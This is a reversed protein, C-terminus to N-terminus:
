NKGQKGKGRSLKDQKLQGRWHHTLYAATCVLLCKHIAKKWSRSRQPDRQRWLGMWQGRKRGQISLKENAQATILFLFVMSGLIAKVDLIAPTITLARRGRGVGVTVTLGLTIRLLCCCVGVTEIAGHETTLFALQNEVLCLGDDIIIAM